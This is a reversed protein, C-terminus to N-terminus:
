SWLGHRIKILRILMEDDEKQYKEELERLKVHAEKRAPSLSLSLIKGSDGETDLAAQYGSDVWPDPRFPRTVWWHYLELAEIAREAQPTPKGYSDGFNERAEAETLDGGFFSEDYKLTAEWDLYKIGEDPDRLLGFIFSSFGSHYWKENKYGAREVEVFDVLMQFNCHLMRSDIDHYEWKNLDSSASYYRHFFRAGLKYEVHKKLDYPFYVFDQVKDVLNDTLWNIIPRENEWYASHSDWEEATGYELNPGFKSRIWLVPKSLAWYKRRHPYIGFM